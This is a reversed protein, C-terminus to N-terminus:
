TVIERDCELINSIQESKYYVYHSHMEVIEKRARPVRLIQCEGIVGNDIKVMTRAKTKYPEQNGWKGVSSAM